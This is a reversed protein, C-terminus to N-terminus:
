RLSDLFGQLMWVASEADIGRRRRARSVDARILALEVARTSLREDWLTVPLALADGLMGAVRRASQARSGARGDLHLPLGVVLGVAARERALVELRPVGATPRTVRITEVAVALQQARDSVAVGVTRAGLDLGLLPGRDPFHSPMM